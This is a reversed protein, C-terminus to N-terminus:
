RARTPRLAAPAILRALRRAVRRTRRPAEATEPNESRTDRALREAHAERLLDEQRQRALYQLSHYNHM